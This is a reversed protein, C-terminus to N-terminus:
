AITENRVNIKVKPSSSLAELTPAIRERIGDAVALNNDKPQLTTADIRLRSSSAVVEVNSLGAAGEVQDEVIRALSKTRLYVGTEAAISLSKRPRRRFVLLMLFLGVLAMLAFVVFMWWRAELGDLTTLVKYTWSTSTIAGSRMLAEQVGVVGLAIILLAALTAVLPTAGVGVPAKAADMTRGGTPKGPHPQPPGSEHTASPGTM